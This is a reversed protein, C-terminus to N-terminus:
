VLRRGGDKLLELVPARRRALLLSTIAAVAVLNTGKSDACLLRIDQAGGVLAMGPFWSSHPWDNNVEVEQGDVEVMTSGLFGGMGRRYRSDIHLTLGGIVVFGGGFFCASTALPTCLALGLSGLAFAWLSPHRTVRKIGYVGSNHLHLNLDLSSDTAIKSAGARPQYRGALGRDAQFDIPCLAANKAPTKSKAAPKEAEAADAAHEPSAGRGGAVPNRLTPALQSLLAAGLLASGCGVARMWTPVAYRALVTAGMPLSGTSRSGDAAVRVAWPVLPKASGKLGSWYGYAMSACCCTSLTNYVTHYTSQGFEAIIWQRNESMILNEAAFLAWGGVVLRVGTDAHWPAKVKNHKTAEAAREATRTEATAIGSSAFGRKGVPPRRAAALLRRALASM